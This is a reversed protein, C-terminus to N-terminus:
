AGSADVSETSPLSDGFSRADSLLAEADLILVLQDGRATKGTYKVISDADEAVGPIDIAKVSGPELPEVSDVMDATLGVLREGAEMVVLTEAMSAEVLEIADRFLSKMRNLLSRGHTDIERLAEEKRGDAAMGLLKDALGHVQAHPEVFRRMHSEVTVDRPKYSDHWIGFACARPDRGLTFEDDEELCRKLENMWRVHDAERAKMLESFEEVERAVPPLGLRVRLDLSVLSRDRHNTVGRVWEPAHPVPSMRIIQIMEQVRSIELAYLEHNLRLILWPLDTRPERREPPADLIGTASESEPM